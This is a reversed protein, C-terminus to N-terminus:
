IRYITEATGAFLARREADSFDAVISSYAEFHQGFNGYLKDVPFNSAFMARQPGFLDITDLVFPRISDTTWTRDIMALGSIKVAVNPQKALLAMGRK